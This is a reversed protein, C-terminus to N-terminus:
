GQSEVNGYRRVGGQWILEGVRWFISCFLIFLPSILLPLYGLCTYHFPLLYEQCLTHLWHTLFEIFFLFFIFSSPFLRFVHTFVADFMRRLLIFRFYFSFSISKVHLTSFPPCLFTFLHYERCMHFTWRTLFKLLISLFNFLFHFVGPCTFNPLFIFSTSWVCPLDLSWHHITYDSIIQLREM